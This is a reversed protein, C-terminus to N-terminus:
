HVFLRYTSSHGGNICKLLYIGESVHSLSINAKKNSIKARTIIKGALNVLEIDLSAGLLNEINIIRKSLTIHYFSVDPYKEIEKIKESTKLLQAVAAKADNLARIPQYGGYDNNGTISVAVKTTADIVVFVPIQFGGVFYTLFFNDADPIIEAYKNFGNYPGSGSTTMTKLASCTPNGGYNMWAAWFNVKGNMEQMYAYYQPAAAECNGCHMGSIMIMLPKGNSLTNYFSIQKTSDPNFICSNFTKDAVVKGTMIHPVQAFISINWILILIIVIIKKVQM